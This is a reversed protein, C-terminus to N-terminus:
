ISKRMERVLCAMKVNIVSAIPEVHYELNFANVTTKAVDRNRASVVTEIILRLVTTKLSEKVLLQM